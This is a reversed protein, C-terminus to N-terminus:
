IIAEALMNPLKPSLCWIVRGEEKEGDRIIKINRFRTEWKIREHENSILEFMDDPEINYFTSKM